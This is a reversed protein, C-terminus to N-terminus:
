THAFGQPDGSTAKLKAPSPHLTLQSDEPSSTSPNSLCDLSLSHSLANDSINVLSSNLLLFTNILM